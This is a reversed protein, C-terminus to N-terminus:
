NNSITQLAPCIGIFTFNIYVHTLLTGYLYEHQKSHRYHCVKTSKIIKNLLYSTFLQQINETHKLWYSVLLSFSFSLVKKGFVGNKPFNILLFVFLHKKKGDNVHMFCPHLFM